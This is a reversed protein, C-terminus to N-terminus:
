IFISTQGKDNLQDSFFTNKRSALYEALSHRDYSSELQKFIVTSQNQNNFTKRNSSSTMM